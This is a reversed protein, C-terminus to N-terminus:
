DKAGSDIWSRIVKKVQDNLASYGEKAPPMRKDDARELAIILGSEDANGPIVLELPSNLLSEKDLLIRKGTGTQNHCEKCSIQFVNRNISDFTALIPEAPELLTGDDPMEKAGKELWNWLYSQEELTLVGRKPMTKEVFVSKKIRDINKLVEGYNELNVNGSSGHCSVCKPIFVKQALLNYSLQSLKEAPLSFESKKNETTEKLKTYNCGWIFVINLFIFFLQRM